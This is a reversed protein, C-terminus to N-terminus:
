QLNGKILFMIYHFPGGPLNQAIPEGLFSKWIVNYGRNDFTDIKYHSIHEGFCDDETDVTSIIAYECHDLINDIIEYNTGEEIHEITEFMAICGYNKTIRNLLFDNVFFNVNPSRNKAANIAVESFDEASVEWDKLTYNKIYSSFDGGACGLEHLSKRSFISQNEKLIRSAVANYGQSEVNDYNSFDYPKNIDYQQIHKDEWKNKTNAGRFFNNNKM